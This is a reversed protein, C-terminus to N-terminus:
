AGTVYAKCVLDAQKAEASGDSFTSVWTKREDWPVEHHPAWYSIPNNYDWRGTGPGYRFAIAGDRALRGLTGALYSSATYQKGVDRATHGWREVMRNWDLPHAEAYAKEILGYERWESRTNVIEPLITALDLEDALGGLAAAESSFDVLWSYPGPVPHNTTEPCEFLYLGDPTRTGAIDDYSPSSHLPCQLREVM